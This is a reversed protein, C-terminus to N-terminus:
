SSTTKHLQIRRLIFPPFTLENTMMQAPVLHCRSVIETSLAPMGAWCDDGVQSGYLRCPRTCFLFTSQSSFLHASLSVVLPPHCFTKTCLLLFLIADFRVDNDRVLLRNRRSSKETAPDFEIPPIAVFLQRRFDIEEELIRRRGVGDLLSAIQYSLM